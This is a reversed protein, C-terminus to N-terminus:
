NKENKDKKIKPLKEKQDMVCFICCDVRCTKHDHQEYAKEVQKLTEM